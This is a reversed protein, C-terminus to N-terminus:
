EDYQGPDWILGLALSALEVAQRSADPLDNGLIVKIGGNIEVAGSAQGNVEFVYGIPLHLKLPSGQVSHVSQIRLHNQQHVFEGRRVAQGPSGARAESAEQLEFHSPLQRGLDWFSCAYALPKPSFNLYKFNIRRERVTCVADIGDFSFKLQATRGDYLDFIQLRSASRQFQGSRHDLEFSGSVGGGIGKVTIASNQQALRAPLEMQAPQLACSGVLLVLALSFLSQSLYNM